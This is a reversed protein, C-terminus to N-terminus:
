YQEAKLDPVRSFREANKTLLTEGNVLAIAAIMSDEPDIPLGDKILQGHITGGRGACESDLVLTEWSELIDSTRTKRPSRPAITLNGRRWLPSSARAKRQQAVREKEQLVELLIHKENSPM